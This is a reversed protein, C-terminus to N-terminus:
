GDDGSEVEGSADSCLGSDISRSVIIKVGSNIDKYIDYM